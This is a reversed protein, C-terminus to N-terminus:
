SHFQLDSGATITCVLMIRWRNCGSYRNDGSSSCKSIIKSYTHALWKPECICRVLVAYVVVKVITILLLYTLTYM